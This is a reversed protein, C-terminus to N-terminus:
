QAGPQHPPRQARLADILGRIEVGDYGLGGFFGVQHPVFEVRIDNGYQGAVVVVSNVPRELFATGVEITSVQQWRIVRLRRDDLTAQDRFPMPVWFGVGENDVVVTLYRPVKLPASDVDGPGLRALAAQLENSSRVTLVIGKPFLERMRNSVGRARLYRVLLVIAITAGVAFGLLIALNILQGTNSGSGIFSPLTM